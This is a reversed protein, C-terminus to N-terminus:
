GENIAVVMEARLRDAGSFDADTLVRLFRLMAGCLQPNQLNPQMVLDLEDDTGGAQYFDAFLNSWDDDTAQTRQVPSQEGEYMARYLVGAADMLAVIRHRDNEPIAEPGFMVVRNCLVPDDEFAAIMQTQSQLIAWLSQDPATRLNAAHRRRIEAGVTFMKSFAEEESAGENLLTEMSDRLYKAEGPYYGQLARYMEGAPSAEIMKTIDAETPKTPAEPEPAECITQTITVTGLETGDPRGYFHEITAGAQIFPAMAESTCNRKTLGLRMSEPLNQADTDVRYIYRLTTAEAEVRLLTTTEDVQQPPVEAAIQRLTADLGQATLMADISRASLNPDAEVAAQVEKEAAIQSQVNLAVGSVFIAFGMVVGLGGSLLPITQVRNPSAENKSPALLLLFNGIPIFALVAANSRGYADRSRAQALRAIFFGGVLSVALDAAVIAWLFGDSMATVLFPVSAYSVAGTALIVLCSLAFYPARRLETTSRSTFGGVIGGLVAIAYHLARLNGESLSSYQYALDELM